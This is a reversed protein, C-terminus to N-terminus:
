MVAPPTSSSALKRKWMREYLNALQYLDMARLAEEKVMEERGGDGGPHVLELDFSWTSASRTSARCSEDVIRLEKLITEEFTRGASMGEGVSKMCPGIAPDVAAFERLDRGPVKAVFYDLPPEFCATMCRRASPRQKALDSGLARKAAAYAPPYNTAKSALARSHPLRSNVEIIRFEQNQLDM